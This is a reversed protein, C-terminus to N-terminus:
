CCGECVRRRAKNGPGSIESPTGTHHHHTGRQSPSPGLSLSLRARFPFDGRSVLVRGVFSSGVSGSCGTADPDVIGDGRGRSYGARAMTSGRPSGAPMEDLSSAEPFSQLPRMRACLLICLHKAAMRRMNMELTTPNGDSLSDLDCM